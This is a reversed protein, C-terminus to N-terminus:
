FVDEPDPADVHVPHLAEETNMKAKSRLWSKM